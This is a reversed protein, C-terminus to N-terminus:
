KTELQHKSQTLDNLQARSGAIMQRGLIDDNRTAAAAADLMKEAEEYQGGAIELQAIFAPIPGEHDGSRYALKAQRLAAGLAGNRAYLQAAKFRLRRLNYEHSASASRNALDDMREAAELSSLGKCRGDRALDALREFALLSDAELFTLRGNFANSVDSRRLQEATTCDIVLRMVAAIRRTAPDASGSLQDIHARAQNPLPPSQEMAWRAADMRLWRSNPHYAIGQILIGRESQWVGARAATAAAMVLVLGVGAISYIQKSHHMRPAFRQGIWYLISIVAWIAGVAPLYNRHEFYMLLPLVSSELSHAVLFIGVGLAFGPIVRRWRWALLVVVIWAAIAVSTALPDFLSHSVAYDDHYVGLTPGVPLLLSSVYDWLVRPQTLLREMLTFPRNAYGGTLIPNGSAVLGLVAIAPVVLAAALFTLAARSRHKGVIPMFLFLELLGCLPLALVGNEKSLAGCLTAIPVLTFLWIAKQRSSKEWAERGYIYALMALLTFLASLMAMRQVVYLVTSVLLPHLLWVAAALLPLWRLQTDTHSNDFSSRKAFARFLAYVLTANLLHLLLNVFKLGWINPGLLAVNLLFSAMAVPRGITGRAGGFAVALWGKDGKLWQNIPSLNDVDDFVFPGDLGAWYVLCALGLLLPWVLRIKM